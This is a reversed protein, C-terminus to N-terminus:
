YYNILNKTYDKQIGTRLYDVMRNIIAAGEAKTIATKPKLYGNEGRVLDLNYLAVINQKAWLDISSDDVFPTVPTLSGGLRELGLARVYITFAEQRTIIADPKFYGVGIGEVIGELYARTIYGYNPHGPEVDKFVVIKKSEEYPELGLARVLIRIFQSRSLAQNPVYYKPNGELIEMGYLKKIDEEAFNGNWIDIGKPAVLQEQSSFTPIDVAGTMKQDEFQAPLNTIEYSIGGSNRITEIYNGSFGIANVKNTDYNMIKNVNISPTLRVSMSWSSKGDIMELESNIDQTETVSWNSRYGYVSGNQNIVVSREASTFTRKISLNTKYYSIGPSYYEIIPAEFYSKSTDLTYKEGNVTITEKWKDAKQDKIIQNDVKRYRITLTIDRDLQVDSNKNSKLSYTLTYTGSDKTPDFLGSQKITLVGETIKVYGDLFVPEKYVFSKENKKSKDPVFMDVTKKLKTGESVGGFYLMDGQEAFTNYSLFTCTLVLFFTWIIKKM